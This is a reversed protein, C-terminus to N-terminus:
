IYSLTVNFLDNASVSERACVYVNTGDVKLNLYKKAKSLFYSEVTTKAAYDSPVTGIQYWTDITSIAKSQYALSIVKVMGSKSVDRYYVTNNYTGNLTVNTKTYQNTVYSEITQGTPIKTNDLDTASANDQIQINPSDFDEGMYSIIPM